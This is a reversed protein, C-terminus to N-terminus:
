TRPLDTKPRLPYADYELAERAASSFVSEGTIRTTATAEKALTVTRARSGCMPTTSELREPTPEHYRV